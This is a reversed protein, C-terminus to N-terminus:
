VWVLNWEQLQSQATVHRARICADGDKPQGSETPKNLGTNFTASSVSSARIRKDNQYTKCLM